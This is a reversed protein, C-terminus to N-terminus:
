WFLTYKGRIKEWISMKERKELCQCKDNQRHM